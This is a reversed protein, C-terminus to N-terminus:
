ESEERKRKQGVKGGEKKWKLLQSVSRMDGKFDRGARKKWVESELLLQRGLDWLVVPHKIWNLFCKSWIKVEVAGPVLDVVKGGEGKSLHDVIQDGESTRRSVHVVHIRFELQEAVYRMAKVLTYVYPDRSHGKQFAYVFGTNDVRLMVSGRRVVQPLWTLLGLFAAYGELLTM